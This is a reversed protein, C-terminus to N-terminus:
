KAASKGAADKKLRERWEWVAAEARRRFPDDPKARHLWAEMAELAGQYNGLGEQAEAMGYYANLQNRNLETANDFYVLAETYRKQGLLAFGMNVHAEPMKPALELVRYFATMAHEHQKAHLMIVGQKFRIDIEEKRKQEVHAKLDPRGSDNIWRDLFYGGGAVLTVMLVAALVRPDVRRVGSFPMDAM